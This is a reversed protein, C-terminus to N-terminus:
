MDKWPWERELTCCFLTRTGYPVYHSVCVGDEYEVCTRIKLQSIKTEVTAGKPM